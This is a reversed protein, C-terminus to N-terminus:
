SAATYESLLGPGPIAADKGIQQRNELLYYERSESQGAKWVRRVDHTTQVPGITTDRPATETFLDVWRQNVKCWASPHCPSDGGGLWEGSAMLCWNGIGFTVKTRDYLDPWGFLLHGLEHVSVGTKADEPLTLFAYVNTSNQTFVQPLTWKISWIDTVVKTQEAGRGAHVIILADVFTNRDNDYRSFTIDDKAKTVADQAMTQSNPFTSQTGNPHKVNTGAYESINRPMHYPGFIDGKLSIKGNSVEKYYDNASGTAFTGTSFLMENFREKTGAPM